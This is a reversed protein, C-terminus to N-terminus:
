VWFGLGMLRRFGVCAGVAKRNENIGPLRGEDEPAGGIGLGLVTCYRQWTFGLELDTALNRLLVRKGKKRKPNGYEFGFVLLLFFPM